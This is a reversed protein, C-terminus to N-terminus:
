SGESEIEQLLKNLILFLPLRKVNSCVILLM